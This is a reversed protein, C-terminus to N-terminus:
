FPVSEAEETPYEYGKNEPQTEKPQNAVAAPIGPIIKTNVHDIMFRRVKSYYYKWDDSNFTEVDGEPTPYGNIPEKKEYDWYYNKIGDSESGDERIETIAVGRVEKGDDDTFSYPRFKYQKTYDLAPLKKLVDEGYATAAGFQLMPYRGDANADLKINVTQGFEGEYTLIDQIYGTLATVIREYKIKKVGDRDEYERRVAEPHTEDVKTRFSGDIVTFYLGPVRTEETSM